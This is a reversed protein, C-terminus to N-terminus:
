KIYIAEAINPNDELRVSDDRTVIWNPTEIRDVGKIAFEDDFSVTGGNKFKIIKTVAM